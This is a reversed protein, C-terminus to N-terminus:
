CWTWLHELKYKCHENYTKSPYIRWDKDHLYFLFDTKEFNLLSKITDFYPNCIPTPPIWEVARTNYLNDRNNLNQVIVEQTCNNYNIWLWYCLSIDADLRYWKKIRNLFISAIIPKNVNVKEEKEIISALILMNYFSLKYNYWYNNLRESFSNIQTELEYYIRDEFNKLQMNVVQDLFDINEDILYTDPYLFWELSEIDQSIGSFYDYKETLLKINWKDTVFEIYWWSEVFWNKTFYDDIDYISWWELITIKNYNKSPWNEFIKLLDEKSYYWDLEYTWEIVKINSIKNVKNYIKIWIRDIYPLSNTISNYSDWKKVLINGSVYINKTYIYFFMLCMLWVILIISFLFLFVTGKKKNVSKPEFVHQNM